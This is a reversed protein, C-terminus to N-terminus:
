VFKDKEDQGFKKILFGLVQIARYSVKFCLIHFM